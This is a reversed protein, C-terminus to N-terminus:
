KGIRTQELWRKLDSEFGSHSGYLSLGKSFEARPAQKKMDAFSSGSGGGGHTVFPIVRKESLDHEALFTKVPLAITGSWIPSGLYITDYDSINELKHKLPRVRNERKDARYEDVCASYDMSYPKQLEIQFLDAKTEAQIKKAVAETNGSWSYYVVLIKQQKMAKSSDQQAAADYNGFVALVLTLIIGITKM